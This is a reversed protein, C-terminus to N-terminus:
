ERGEMCPTIVWTKYSESMSTHKTLLIYKRNRLKKEKWLKRTTVVFFETFPIDDLLDVSFRTHFCNRSPRFSLFAHQERHRQKKDVFRTVHVSLIFYARKVISRPTIVNKFGGNKISVCLHIYINSKWGGLWM